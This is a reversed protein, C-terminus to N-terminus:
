AKKKKKKYSLVLRERGDVEEIPWNRGRARRDEEAM